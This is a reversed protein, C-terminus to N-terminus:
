FARQAGQIFPIPNIPEAVMRTADNFRHVMGGNPMPQGNVRAIEDEKWANVVFEMFATATADNEEKDAGAQGNMFNEIKLALFKGGSDNLAEIAWRQFNPDHVAQLAVRYPFRNERSLNTTAFNGALVRGTLTNMDQTYIETLRLAQYIETPTQVRLNSVEGTLQDLVLGGGLPVLKSREYNAKETEMEINLQEVGRQNYQAAESADLSARAAEEALSISSLQRARMDDSQDAIAQLQRDERHIRGIEQVYGAGIGAIVEGTSAATGPRAGQIAQLGGAAGGGLTRALAETQRVQQAPRSPGIAERAGSFDPPTSSRLEPLQPTDLLQAPSFQPGGRAAAAAPPAAPAEQAPGAAGAVGGGLAQSPDIGPRAGFLADSASRGALAQIGLRSAPEVGPVNMLTQSLSSPLDLIGSGIGGILGRDAIANGTAQLDKAIFRGPAQMGQFGFQGASKLANMVSQALTPDEQIQQPNVM